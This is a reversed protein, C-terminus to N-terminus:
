KTIERIRAFLKEYTFPKRLIAIDALSPRTRVDDAFAGYATILLIPVEGFRERVNEAFDAGGYEDDAIRLDVIVLTPDIEDLARQAQDLNKCAVVQYRM